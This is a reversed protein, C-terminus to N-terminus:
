PLKFVNLYFLFVGVKLEVEAPKLCTLIVAIIINRQLISLFSTFDNCLSGGGRYGLSLTSADLAPPGTNLRWDLVADYWLRLIFPVM